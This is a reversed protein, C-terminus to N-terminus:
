WQRRIANGYESSEPAGVAHQIFRTLEHHLATARSSEAADETDQAMRETWYHVALALADLRDDKALAGKEKTIRTMQYFLRYRLAMEESLGESHAFDKTILTRDVVLRHQNMVPELTDIIRREKQSQSRETEEIACPHIKRMVPALLQNFMGDGFNPEIVIENVMYRKAMNAIAILTAEDYGGKLGGANLLFLRGHLMAVVAFGTEDKGRGSPDVSMIVGNYPLWTDKSVMFPKYFHDGTFGVSPLDEHRLDRDNGWALDVPAKFPDVDMVILDHLKLPYKEADSMSTNLMFQLAYGTAGYEAKAELLKEMPFRECTPRGILGTDESLDKLLYSALRDGYVMQMKEDPYEAPLIRIEYGRAPLANYISMETQPTGLYVIRSSALPKIIAAFEKVLESLKDRMMTTASNGPVEIDDAIIVDARSGTLQGTIGVSKVSPAHDALSPGVDFAIKSNRQGDKSKLHELFPMENILRLTFTSFDDARTKSASVVLINLQPDCYLLWCVFASTVWSKGIDRFAEIVLRQPGYQLWDALEYQSRTPCPLNLMRWVITLFVKFDTRLLQETTLQTM